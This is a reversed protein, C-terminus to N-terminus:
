SKSAIHLSMSSTNFPPFIKELTLDKYRKKYDNSIQLGILISSLDGSLDLDDLITGLHEKTLNRATENSNENLIVIKFLMELTEKFLVLFEDKRKNKSSQNDAQKYKEWKSNLYSYLENTKCIYSDINKKLAAEFNTDKKKMTSKINIEETFSLICDFNNVLFLSAKFSKKYLKFNPSQTSFQRTISKAISLSPKTSSSSMVVKEVEDNLFEELREAILLYYKAFTWEPSFEFDEKQIMEIAASEINEESHEIRGRRNSRQYAAMANADEEEISENELSSKLRKKGFEKLRQKLHERHGGSDASEKETSLYNSECAIKIPELLYKENKKILRWVDCVKRVHEHINSDYPLEFTNFYGTKIAELYSSFVQSSTENLKMSFNLLKSASSLDDTQLCSAKEKLSQVKALLKIIAALVEDDSNSLKTFDCSEKKTFFTEFEKQIQDIILITLKSILDVRTEYSKCYINNLLINEHKLLKLSFDM